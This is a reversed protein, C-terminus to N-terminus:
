ELKFTPSLSPSYCSMQDPDEVTALSAACSEIEIKIEKKKSKRMMVDKNKKWKRKGGVEQMKQQLPLVATSSGFDCSM